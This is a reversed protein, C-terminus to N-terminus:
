DEHHRWTIFHNVTFNWVMVFPITAFFYFNNYAIKRFGIDVFGEGFHDHLLKVLIVGILLGGLSVLNFIGFKQWFNTKTKRYRFTWFNNLTFNNIIAVEASFGKSVPPTMGFTWIFIKYFLFDVLTGVLGVLGFKVLTKVKRSYHFIPVDFGWQKARADLSYTIIDYTYNFIKNKSYGEERNKFILPVEKYRAGALVAAHLFAPQIIYTKERWPVLDLNIKKFLQPTFARASNTFEKIDWPGMVVRSFTCAGWTFIKRVTNLENKGGEIFRSGIVFDYGEDIQELMKPVVDAKVQGDADLQVLVDPKFYKIAAKHGEILGVGLGLGVTELKIRKNTKELKRAIEATGDTSSSDAILVVFRWGSIKKEQEFVEKVFRELNDKENFTPLVITATKM